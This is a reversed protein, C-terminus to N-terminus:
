RYGIRMELPERTLAPSLGILMVPLTPPLPETVTVTLWPLLLAVPEPRKASGGAAAGPLAALAGAGPFGLAAALESRLDRADSVANTRVGTITTKPQM